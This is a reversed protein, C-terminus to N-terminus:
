KNLNTTYKTVQVTYLALLYIYGNEKNLEHGHM